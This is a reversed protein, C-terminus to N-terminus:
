VRVDVGTSASQDTVLAPAQQEHPEGSNMWSWARREQPADHGGRNFQADQGTRSSSADGKDSDVLVRSCSLGAELLDRRLDPVAKALITRSDALNSRLSVDLRGDKVQVHITVPGLDDPTVQVVLSYTGDDAGRLVGM